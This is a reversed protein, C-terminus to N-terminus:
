YDISIEEGPEFEVPSELSVGRSLNSEDGLFQCRRDEVLTKIQALSSKDSKDFVLVLVDAGLAGCGKKALLAPHDISELLQHSQEHLFGLSELAQRYQNMGLAFGNADVSMFGALLTEMASELEHTAFDKLTRLHEHTAIKLPTKCFLLGLDAFPWAQTALKGHSRDFHVIGGLVQAVLDAGSPKPGQSSQACSQYVEIMERLDALESGEKLSKQFSDHLEYLAAFSATSAGLGGAGLYPDLFEIQYQSYFSEHIKYLKGAPSEPHFPNKSVPEASRACQLVFRPELAAVLTSKGQLALYEGALFVKGPVSIQLKRLM